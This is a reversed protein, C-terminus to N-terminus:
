SSCADSCLHSLACYSRVYLPIKEIESTAIGCEDIDEQSLITDLTHYVELRDKM